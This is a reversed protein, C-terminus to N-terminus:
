FRVFSILMNGLYSLCVVLLAILWNIWIKEQIRYSAYGILTLAWCVNVLIGPIVPLILFPIIYSLTILMKYLSTRLGIQIAEDQSKDTRQSFYMGLGDSFSDSLAVSLIASIIIFKTQNYLGVMIGLTTISGSILGFM